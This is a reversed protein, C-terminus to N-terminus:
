GVHCQHTAVAGSRDGRGGVLGGYQQVVEGVGALIGVADKGGESLTAGDDARNDVGRVAVVVAAADVAEADGPVDHVFM